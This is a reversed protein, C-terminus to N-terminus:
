AYIVTVEEGINRPVNRDYIKLIKDEPDPYHSAECADVIVQRRKYQRNM